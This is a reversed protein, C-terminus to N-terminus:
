AKVIGDLRAVVLLRFQGRLLQVDALLPRAGVPPARVKADGNDLRGCAVRMKALYSDNRRLIKGFIAGISGISRYFTLREPWAEQSAARWAKPHASGLM